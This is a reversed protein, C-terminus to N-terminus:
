RVRADVAADTEELPRSAATPRSEGGAKKVPLRRETTSACLPPLPFCLMYSDGTLPRPMPRHMLPLDTANRPM